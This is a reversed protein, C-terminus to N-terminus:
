QLSAIGVLVLGIILVCFAVLSAVFLLAMRLLTGVISTQYVGRMHVFLHVPAAFFLISGNGLMSLLMITSILLGMFSLSHMSFILHDFVYFRRQFVFLISLIVASIPLMLFAFREGWTELQLKFEEPRDIVRQLHERLWDVASAASAGGQQERVANSLRLQGVQAKAAEKQAPTMETFRPRAARLERRLAQREADSLQGAKAKAVAREVDARQTPTLDAQNVSMPGFSASLAGCAFLVLLVVLFLRLPPIQPARQGDLYRRTLRGPRLVLDPLTRWVRGDMHFVGEVSEGALRVWSRHFDEGLQGCAHCWPGQLTTRCSACPTGPPAAHAAKRRARFLGATADIQAAEIEHAM